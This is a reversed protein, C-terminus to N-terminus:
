ERGLFMTGGVQKQYSEKHTLRALPVRPLPTEQEAGRCRVIILAKVIFSSQHPSFKGQGVLSITAGISQNAHKWLMLM